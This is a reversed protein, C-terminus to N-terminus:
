FSEGDVVLLEDGGALSIMGPTKMDVLWYDDYLFQVTTSGLMRKFIAKLPSPVRLQSAQNLHHSLDIAPTLTSM